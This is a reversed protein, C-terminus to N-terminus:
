VKFYCKSSPDLYIILATLVAAFTVLFLLIPLFQCCKSKSSTPKLNDDEVKKEHNQSNKKMAEKPAEIKIVIPTESNNKTDKEKM